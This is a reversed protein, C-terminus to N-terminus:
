WWRAEVMGVMGGSGVAWWFGLLVPSALLFGAECCFGLFMSRATDWASRRSGCRDGGFGDGIQAVWFGLLM